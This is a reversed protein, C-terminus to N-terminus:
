GKQYDGALKRIMRGVLEDAGRMAQDVTHYFFSDDGKDSLRDRSFYRTGVVLEYRDQYHKVHFAPRIEVSIMGELLEGTAGTHSSNPIWTLGM